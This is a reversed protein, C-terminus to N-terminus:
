AVMEGRAHEHYNARVLAAALPPCVSNGIKAVQNSKTGTLLYDDPFGQARALERPQLMRLGIDAIMYDVGHVTVLGLRDKTTITHAPENCQQGVGCGYYKVLFVRVEATHGCSTVTPVPKRIDSGVSQGYFSSLFSSVIFHRNGTTITALPDLAGHPANNTNNAILSAAVLGTDGKATITAVPDKGGRPRSQGARGGVGVLAPVVLGHADRAACLTKMPDRLGQGRFHEGSHNCTVIFPEQAEIVYRRIGEAIRRLTNEALPRQREFISPCPLTWDICEAATRYPALRGKGHTPLPWVIPAGDRRAILFFRTRTTPTGYDAACLTRWDVEYGHGRLQAVFSRFTEGKRSAVPKNDSGLPGWTTFEPVNELIIVRPQVTAAWRLATWALGRIKKEVPKGGKARSFHKCDPSFWCLGVKRGGTVTLPDVDWVDECLHLTEPHNREHMEIADRDHNIAVDVPRGIAMEIGTSAGGGGAFNDVVMEDDFQLQRWPRATSTARLALSTM